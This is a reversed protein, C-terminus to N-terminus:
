TEVEVGARLDTTTPAWSGDTTIRLDIRDGAVFTDTGIVQTTAAFQTDTGDLVATLGTAAGNLYVEITATGASRAVSVRAWVGTISGDRGIILKDPNAAVTTGAHDARALIVASQNAAVNNQFWLDFAFRSGKTTRSLEVWASDVYVLTLVENASSPTFNASGNLKINTGDHQITTNTNAFQLILMQGLYGNTFNTVTTSGSNDFRIHRLPIPSSADYTTEGGSLAIIRNSIIPRALNNNADSINTAFNGTFHINPGLHIVTDYSTAAEVLIGIGSSPTQPIFTIHDIDIFQQNANARVEIGYTCGIFECQRIYIRRAYEVGGGIQVEYATSGEGNRYFTCDQLTVGRAFNDIRIAQDYNWEFHVGYVSVSRVGNGIFLGEQDNTSAQGGIIMIPGKINTGTDTRHGIQFGTGVENASCNLMVIMNSTIGSSPSEIKFGKGTWTGGGSAEGRVTVHDMTVNWSSDLYIGNCTSNEVKLYLNRFITHESSKWTKILNTTTTGSRLLLNEIRVPRAIKSTGDIEILPNASGDKHILQSGVTDTVANIFATQEGILAIRGADPYSADGDTTLYITDTKYRGAPFWVTGGFEVAAYTARRIATTDDTINDGKANFWKVNITPSSFWLVLDNASHAYDLAAITYTTGSINTVVRVECEITFPDIVLFIHNPGATPIRKNLDLTTDTASIDANLKYRFEVDALSPSAVTEVLLREVDKELNRRGLNGSFM